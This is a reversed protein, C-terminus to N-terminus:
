VPRGLRDGDGRHHYAAEFEAPPRDGCASHLRHNNFWDLYDLTALEVDAVGTWPGDRGILETKFLGHFSEALADDYSDGTSGVSAVAGADALRRTYRIALYQGGRDSHHVLGPLGDVSQRRWIAMELAALALDARLHNAVQWGIVMRSFVDIVFAAYVFGSRTRLYTIDAVWRLNPAPATFDRHLLDAPRSAETDAVTTRKPTGRVAGALGQQRMLREVTCRAVEIGDRHLQRWVKRAGYVGRNGEHVRRIQAMLQEDSVARASPPRTKAAYYSSPAVQVVRCIPEVGFQGRKQDIFATM